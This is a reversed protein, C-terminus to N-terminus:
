KSKKIITALTVKVGEIESAMSVVNMVDEYKITKDGKVVVRYGLSNPSINKGKLAFRIENKLQDYTTRKGDVFYNLDEDIGVKVSENAEPKTISASPINIKIGSTTVSSTLMFFILLLFVIDTMSSMNFTPDAKHRSKLNM